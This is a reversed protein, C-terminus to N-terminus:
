AECSTCGIAVQRTGNVAHWADLFRALHPRSSGEAELYAILDGIARDHSDDRMRGSLHAWRLYVIALNLCDTECYGRVRGIEGAEMLAAVNAGHEGLKGPAGVLAAAEDLTLRSSAGFGALVEMLDIHWDIAYRQGYGSWRSGRRFWCPVAIGYRMSRLLITPVDFSRGNWTLLRYHGAEFFKWFARLLREENWCPEGGSRCTRLHYAEYTGSGSRTIGFEVFSIAVIRHWAPKAFREPDWDRPLLASDPVTEIDLALLGDHPESERVIRSRVHAGPAPRDATPVVRNAEGHPDPAPDLDATRQPRRLADSPSTSM